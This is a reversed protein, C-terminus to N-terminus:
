SIIDIKNCIVVIPIGLNVKLVGEGLPVNLRGDEEDSLDSDLDDHNAAKFEEKRAIILNGNDDM